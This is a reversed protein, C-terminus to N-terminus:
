GPSNTRLRMSLGHAVPTVAGFRASPRDFVEEENLLMAIARSNGGHTLVMAASGRQATQYGLAHILELGADGALAARCGRRRGTRVRRSGRASSMRPSCGQTSWPGPVAPRELRCYGILPGFPPIGTRSPSFQLAYASLGILSLGSIPAPDGTTGVVAALPDGVPSAYTVVLVVPAPRGAQRKKFLTRLEDAKPQGGGEASAIAVELANDGNGFLVRDTEFAASTGM